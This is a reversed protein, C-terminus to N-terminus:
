GRYQYGKCDWNRRDENSDANDHNFAYHDCGPLARHQHLTPPLLPALPHHHPHVNNSTRTRNKKREPHNTSTETKTKSHRRHRQHHTRSLAIPIPFAPTNIGSPPRASFYTNYAPLSVGHVLPNIRESHAPKTLTYPHLWAPLYQLRFM